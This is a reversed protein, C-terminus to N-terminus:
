RSAAHPRFADVVQAYVGRKFPVVLDVLEDIFVWKWRDFEPKAGAEPAIDIDADDGDFRMAFWKQKQGRYRGKLAVGLAEAPLDYTLWDDTEAIITASATGVEEELERLAAVRPSEGEDIGGQPMQWMNASADKDWKSIRHGVWVLGDRNLLMIGVCPRYSLKSLDTM